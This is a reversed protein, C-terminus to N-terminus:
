RANLIEAAEKLLFEKFAQSVVSLRKGKRHMIYWHRMIPFHEVDLIVLRNLALEMDLTYRSLLGLGLGAQVSQKIAENNGIEMVTTISIKHRRFFREVADRTGSGPERVLFVDEELRKLPIKEKNALPHDPPAIIVLPNEMFPDAVLDMEAPPQGMIALDTENEALQNLLVKRNTVDLIININPFRKCFRGLLIPVFYNATSAVSIRLKGRGVGKLNALVEDLEDLQRAIARSYHFMERGAETLFIKKGLQEFLPLGANDELQRIQMSVAPQSLHLEEAARTYSSLRAVADFVRLQRLTIHM